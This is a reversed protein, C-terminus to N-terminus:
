RVKGFLMKLKGLFKYFLSFRWKWVRLVNTKSKNATEFGNELVRGRVLNRNLYEQFNQRMKGSFSISKTMLFQCSLKFFAIKLHESCEIKVELCKSFWKRFHKRHCVTKFMKLHKQRTKGSFPKLKTM